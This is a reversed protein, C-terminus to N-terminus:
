SGTGALFLDEIHLACPSPLFILAWRQNRVADLLGAADSEEVGLAEAARRRLSAAETARQSASRGGELHSAYASLVQARWFRGRSGEVALAFGASGLMAEEMTEVAARLLGEATFFDKSTLTGLSALTRFRIPQLAPDTLTPQLIEVDRLVATLLERAFLADSKGAQVSLQGTTCRLAMRVEPDLDTAMQGEEPLLLEALFQGKALETEVHKECLGGIDPLTRAVLGTVHWAASANADLPVEAGAEDIREPELVAKLARSALRLGPAMVSGDDHALGIARAMDDFRGIEFYSRAAAEALRVKADCLNGKGAEICGAEFESAADGFRGLYWLCRGCYANSLTRERMAEDPFYASVVDAARKLPALASHYQGSELAEAGAVFDPLQGLLGAKLTASARLAGVAKHRWLLLSRTALISSAANARAAM